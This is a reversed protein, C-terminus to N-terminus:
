AIEEGKRIPFRCKVVTGKRFVSHIELKGGHEKVIDQAISLGLGNGNEKTSFFPNFLWKM